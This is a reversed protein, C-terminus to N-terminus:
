RSYKEPNTLTDILQKKSKNMLSLTYKKEVNGFQPDDPQAKYLSKLIQNAQASDGLMILNIAKNTTVMAYNRNGTQMTDLVPNCITLSKTFYSKSAITDGVKEHLIGATLYLDHANPRLKICTDVTSLLRNFQKLSYLFMLKNHYCLFCNSDIATASDLFSLAKKCSDPNDIFNSLPVIKNSLRVAEPNPKHITQKQGCSCFAILLFFVILKLATM